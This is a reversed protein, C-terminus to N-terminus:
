YIIACAFCKSTAILKASMTVERAARMTMCAESHQIYYVRDDRARGEPQARARTFTEQRCNATFVKTVNTYICTCRWESINIYM